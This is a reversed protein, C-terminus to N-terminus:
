APRAGAALARQMVRLALTACGRRAVPVGAGLAALADDDTLAAASEVSSGSLLVTLLSASATAIACASAHFAADAIVGGRVELEVRIRDGCTTNSGEHAHTPAGLRRQNRPHRYHEVVLPLWPAAPEGSV